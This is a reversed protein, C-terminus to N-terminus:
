PIFLPNIESLQSDNISFNEFYLYSSLQALDKVPIPIFASGFQDSLGTKHNRRIKNFYYQLHNNIFGLLEGSHFFLLHDPHLNTQNLVPIDKNFHHIPLTHNYFLIIVFDVYNPLFHKGRKIVKRRHRIEYASFLEDMSQIRNNLPRTSDGPEDASVFDVRLDGYLGFGESYQVDVQISDAVILDVDTVENINNRITPVKLANLLDYVFIESFNTKSEDVIQM